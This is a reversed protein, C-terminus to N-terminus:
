SETFVYAAFTHVFRHLMLQLMEFANTNMLSTWLGRGRQMKMVKGFYEPRGRSVSARSSVGRRCQIAACSRAVM